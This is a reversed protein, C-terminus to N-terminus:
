IEKPEIRVQALDRSCSAGCGTCNYVYFPKEAGDFRSGVMPEHCWPCLPHESEQKPPQYEGRVFDLTDALCEPCLQYDERFADQDEADEREIMGYSHGTVFLQRFQVAEFSFSDDRHRDGRISDGCRSCKAYIDIM